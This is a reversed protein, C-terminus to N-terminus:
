GGICSARAGRAGAGGSGSSAAAQVKEEHRMSAWPAPRRARHTALARPRRLHQHCQLGVLALHRHLTGLDHAQALLHQHERAAAADILAARVGDEDGADALQAAPGRLAREWYKRRADVSPFADMVRQRLGRATEALLGIGPAVVTEIASRLDRVLIPGAGGSSLANQSSMLLPFTGASNPPPAFSWYKERM